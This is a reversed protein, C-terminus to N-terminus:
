LRKSGSSDDYGGGAIGGALEGSAEVTGYFKCGIVSCNGMANDRTGIIGGVYSTGYVTAYCVTKWPVRCAAPLLESKRKGKAIDLSLTRKLPVIRVTAEFASLVALMASMTKNAGLLGAKLTSSGSKLTVNDIELLWESLGVGEFNNILGYGAIKQEM